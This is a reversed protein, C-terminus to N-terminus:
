VNAFFISIPPFYLIITQFSSMIEAMQVNRKTTDNPCIRYIYNPGSCRKRDPHHVLIVRNLYRENETPISKRYGLPFPDAYHHQTSCKEKPSDPFCVLSIYPQCALNRRHWSLNAAVLGHIGSVSLDASLIHCGLHNWQKLCYFIRVGM